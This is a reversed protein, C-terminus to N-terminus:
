KRLAQWMMYGTKATKQENGEGFNDGRTSWLLRTKYFTNADSRLFPNNVERQQHEKRLPSEDQFDENKSKEALVQGAGNLGLLM